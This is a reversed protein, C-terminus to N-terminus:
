KQIGKQLDPMNDKRGNNLVGKALIIITGWKLLKWITFAISFAFVANIDVLIEM